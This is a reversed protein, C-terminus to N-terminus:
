KSENPGLLARLERAYQWCQRDREALRLYVDDALCSLEDSTLAPVVPKVPILWAPVPRYDPSPCACGALMFPVLWLLRM